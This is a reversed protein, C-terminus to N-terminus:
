ESVVARIGLEANLAERRAKRENVYQDITAPTLEVGNRTRVREIIDFIMNLAIATEVIPIEKTRAM